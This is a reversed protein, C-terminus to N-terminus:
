FAKSINVFVTNKTVDSSSHGNDLSVFDRYAKPNNSGSYFIGASWGAPLAKTLGVKYYTIDLDTANRIVQRGVQGSLNLGEAIDYSANIEFFHSGRTNGTVGASYDGFFGGAIPSNNTSWGFYENLTRGTKFSLWEWSLSIYAELTDVNNRANFGTFTSDSWNAGPYMYYIAGVDVGIADALKTRYGGYVDTEISAGPLWHNSVNSAFFGAYVGSNHAAEVNLQLAPRGWSQSQGRFIYDSVLSFTVPVSWSSEATAEAAFTQTATSATTLAAAAALIYTSKRM